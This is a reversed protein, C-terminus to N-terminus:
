AGIVASLTNAPNPNFFPQGGLNYEPVQFTRRYAKEQLLTQIESDVDKAIKIAQKRALLLQTLQPDTLLSRTFTKPITSRTDELSDYHPVMEPQGFVSSGVFLLIVWCPLTAM